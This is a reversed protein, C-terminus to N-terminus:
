NEGKPKQLTRRQAEYLATNEGRLPKPTKDKKKEMADRCKGCYGRERSAINLNDGDCAVQATCIPTQLNTTSYSPKPRTM